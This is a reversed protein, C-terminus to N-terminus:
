SWAEVKIGYAESRRIDRTMAMRRKLRVRRKSVEKLAYDEQRSKMVKEQLDTKLEKKRDHEFTELRQKHFVQASLASLWSPDKDSLTWFSEWEGIAQEVSKSALKCREEQAELATLADLYEREARICKLHQLAHLSTLMAFNNKAKYM